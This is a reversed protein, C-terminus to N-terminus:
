GSTGPSSSRHAPPLAASSGVGSKAGCGWIAAAQEASISTTTVNAEPVIILMSQVPGSWEGIGAPRPVGQCSDFAVDSVGISAMTNGSLNCTSTLVKTSDTPDVTYYHATGTLPQAVPNDAPPSVASVGNCSSIAAYVLSVQQKAKIQVALQSLIPEFASSGGMFVPNALVSTDNCAITTSQASATSAGLLMGATGALAIISRNHRM